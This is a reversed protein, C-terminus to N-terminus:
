RSWRRMRRIANDIEGDTLKRITPRERKPEYDYDLVENGDTLIVQEWEDKDWKARPKEHKKILVTLGSPLVTKEVEGQSSWIEFFFPNNRFKDMMFEQNWDYPEQIERYKRISERDWMWRDLPKM